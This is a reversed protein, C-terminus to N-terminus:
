VSYSVVAMWAELDLDMDEEARLAGSCVHCTSLYM